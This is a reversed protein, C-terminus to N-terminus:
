KKPQKEYKQCGPCYYVSGGLYAEKQILAGCAPCPHDATNKSLVSHYGGLCGFLDRETDRGGKVTMEMLTDRVSHFMAKLESNTLEGMKRKPHIRANWLIDQLV